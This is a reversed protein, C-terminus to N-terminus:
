HRSTRQPRRAVDGHTPESERGQFFAYNEARNALAKPSGERSSPSHGSAASRHGDRAGVGRGGDYGSHRHKSPRPSGERRQHRHHRREPSVDRSHGSAVEVLVKGSSQSPRSSRVSHEDQDRTRHYSRSSRQSNPSHSPQVEIVEIFTEREDRRSRQGKDERYGRDRPRPSPSQAFLGRFADFYSSPRANSLGLADYWVQLASNVCQRTRDHPRSPFLYRSLQKPLRRSKGKATEGDAEIPLAAMIGDLRKAETDPSAQIFASMWDVFGDSTLAPIYPRDRSEGQVLHYECRLDQYLLELCRMPKRSNCDFM